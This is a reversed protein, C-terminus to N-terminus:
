KSRERNLADALLMVVEGFSFGGREHLREFSQSGHHIAYEAYAMEAIDKPITRCHSSQVPVQESGSFDKTGYWRDEPKLRDAM